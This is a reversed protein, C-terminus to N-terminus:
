VAKKNELGNLYSLFEKGQKASLRSMSYIDPHKKQIKEMMENENVGKLSMQRKLAVITEDSIPKNESEDINLDDKSVEEFTCLRICLAERICRGTARTEAITSLYKQFGGKGGINSPTADALAEWVRGEPDEVSPVFWMKVSVIVMSESAALFKVEKKSVGRVEALDRLGDVKLLPDRTKDNNPYVFYEPNFMAQWDIKGTKKSYIYEIHPKGISATKVSPYPDPSVAGDTIIGDNVFANYVAKDSPTMTDVQPTNTTVATPPTPKEVLASVPATTLVAKTPEPDQAAPVGNAKAAKMINEPTFKKNGLDRVLNDLQEKKSM